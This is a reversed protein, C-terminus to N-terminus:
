NNGAELGAAAKERVNAFCISFSLSILMLAPYFLYPMIGFPTLDIGLAKAGACAYLLQAGYPLFGQLASATIDMISAARKPSINYEQAIDKVISGTMVIAVTNNATAIDMTASVAGIGLQAQRPTSIMSKIKNLVYEIGGNNRVLGIIGAVVISIAMIDYMGAIGGDGNPGKAIVSFVATPAITGLALGVIISLVTGGFLVIFVNIGFLAAALVSLYPLIQWVSYDLSGNIQYNAEFTLGLFLFFTVIAAPLVVKFNEKFKDQMKCGQTQTAAITTDSIMSLNDGFMAGCVIAGMCLAAEFGTKESVGLAIPALAAITGVSTGMSLSIFCAIIFLGAVIGAPPLISLSFSVTSTVGGAAQVAGSFAGALLFVMCMIMVNEQGMSRTAIVIKEGLGIHRNQMFAAILAVGFVVIAPMMYFDGFVVGSVIFLGLFIFVPLLANANAKKKKM